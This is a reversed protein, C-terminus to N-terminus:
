KDIAMSLKELAEALKLNAETCKEQQDLFHQEFKDDKEIYKNIINYSGCLVLILIGAFGAQIWKNKILDAM